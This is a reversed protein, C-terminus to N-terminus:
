GRLLLSRCDRYARDRRFSFCVYFLLGRSPRKNKQKLGTIQIFTTHIEFVQFKCINIDCVFFTFKLDFFANKTDIKHKKDFFNDNQMNTSIKFRFNHLIYVTGFISLIHFYLAVTLAPLNYNGRFIELNELMCTACFFAYRHLVSVKAAGGM